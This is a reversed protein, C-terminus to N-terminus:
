YDYFSHISVSVYYFQRVIIHLLEDLFKMIGSNAYYL